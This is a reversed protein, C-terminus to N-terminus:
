FPRIHVAIRNFDIGKLDPETQVLALLAAQESAAIVPVQTFHIMRETVGDELEKKSPVSLVLVQYAPM